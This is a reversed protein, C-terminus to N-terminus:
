ASLIGRERASIIAETRNHAGLREYVNEAHSKITNYSVSLEEAIEKYRKGLALSQLVQLQRRTLEPNEGSRISLPYAYLTERVRRALTPATFPKQLFAGQNRFVQGDVIAEDVHGSMYLVQTEPHAKTVRDALEPGGMLPMVVDTLLLNVPEDVREVVAMAETGNAAEMVKYGQARLMEATVKRVQPEDEVVLVTETGVPLYGQDDRLPLSELAGEAQPLYVNVTTGQGVESQVEIFGGSQAVIGYCTSIGLGTGRGVEKTTYFPEFVQTRVEKTMGVGNDSVSLMVYDGVTVGPRTAVWEENLSVNATEVWVKGGEPMADRANIVLNLVVQEIQLPDVRVLGPNALALTVLEIDEGILRRLMASTDMIIDNLDLVRPSIIHHRSFALLQSTIRSAREAAVQVERLYKRAAEPEYIQTTALHTYNIIATLMNNFDHAVGGALRGVTEMKQSQLIQEESQRRESMDAAICVMSVPRPAQLDRRHLRTANKRNESM